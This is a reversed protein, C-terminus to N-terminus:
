CAGCAPCPSGGIQWGARRFIDPCNKEFCEAQVLSDLEVNLLTTPFKGAAARSLEEEGVRFGLRALTGGVRAVNLTEQNVGNREVKFQPFFLTRPTGDSAARTSIMDYCGHSDYGRIEAALWLMLEVCQAPHLVLDCLAAQVLRIGGFRSAWVGNDGFVCLVLTDAIRLAVMDGGPITSAFFDFRDSPAAPVGARFVLLSAPPAAVTLDEPRHELCRRLYDTRALLESLELMKTSNPDAVATRLDTERFRTGYYVKALWLFLATPDLARVADCGARFAASVPLELDRSMRQNCDWCCPVKRQAYRFVQGNPLDAAANGLDLLKLVWKPVVDEETRVVDGSFRRHCIFCATGYAAPDSGRPQPGDEPPVGALTDKSM